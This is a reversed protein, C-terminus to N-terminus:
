PNRMVVAAPRTHLTGAPSKQQMLKMTGCLSAATNGSGSANLGSLCKGVFVVLVVAASASLLLLTLLLPVPLLLLAFVVTAAAAAAAPTATSLSPFLLLLM